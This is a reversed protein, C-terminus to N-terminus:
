IFVWPSTTVTRARLGSGLNTEFSSISSFFFIIIYSSVTSRSHLSLLCLVAKRAPFPIPVNSFRAWPHLFRRPVGRDSIYQLAYGPNTTFGEM